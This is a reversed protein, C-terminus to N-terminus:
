GSIAQMTKSGSKAQSIPASKESYIGAPNSMPKEKRFHSDTAKPGRKLSDQIKVQPNKGNGKSKGNLDGKRKNVGDGCASKM